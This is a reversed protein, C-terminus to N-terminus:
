GCPEIMDMFNLGHAVLGHMEVSGHVRGHACASWATYLSRGLRAGASGRALRASDLVLRATCLSRGLRAGGSVLRASSRAYVIARGASGHVRGHTCLRAGLWATCEATCVNSYVTKGLDGQVNQARCM